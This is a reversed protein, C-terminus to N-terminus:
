TPDDSQSLASQRNAEPGTSVLNQEVLYEKWSADRCEIPDCDPGEILDRQGFIWGANFVSRSEASLREIEGAMQEITEASQLLSEAYKSM